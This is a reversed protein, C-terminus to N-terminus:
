FIILAYSEANVVIHLILHKNEMINYLFCKTKVIAHKNKWLGQIKYFGEEYIRSHIKCM